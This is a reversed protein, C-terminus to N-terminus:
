GILARSSVSTVLSSAQNGWTAQYSGRALVDLIFAAM